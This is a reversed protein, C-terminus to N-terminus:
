DWRLPGVTTDGLLEQFIRHIRAMESYEEYYIGGLLLIMAALWYSLFVALVQYALSKM